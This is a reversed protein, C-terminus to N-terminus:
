VFELLHTRGVEVHHSVVPPIYDAYGLRGTEAFLEGLFEALKEFDVVTLESLNRGV